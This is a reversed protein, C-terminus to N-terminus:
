LKGILLDPPHMPQIAEYCANFWERGGQSFFVSYNWHREQWTHNPHIEEYLSALWAIKEENKRKEARWLRKKMRNFSKILRQKEAKVLHSFTIDTAGASSEIRELSTILLQEQHTLLQALDQNVIIKKEIWKDLPLMIMELSLENKNLKNIIKENLWLMSHRPILLPLPTHITKFYDDLELWYAIEANGGIYAINPLVTEQYAPRLLANPSFNEPSSHLEHLIKEKSWPTNRATTFHNKASPIIRERTNTLHFLNIERPNVQVKAYRRTLKEITDATAQYLLHSNIEREFIPIMERKLTADDGNLFLLGYESFLEQVLIATSTALDHNERYAKRAFHILEKGYPTDRFENELDQIFNVNEPKIRGVAGGTQASIAYSKERTHFAHIEEFDHDETAMWFVPVFHYEPLLENLVNATKITQLIKYIFFVPGSFLNLQHGTTITFTNDERLKRLHTTQLATLPLGKMQENFVDSILARKQPSFTKKKQEIKETVSGVSLRLDADSALNGSIYDKILKPTSELQTFPIQAIVNM